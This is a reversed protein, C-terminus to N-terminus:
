ERAEPSELLARHRAELQARQTALEGLTRTAETLDAEAQALDRLAANLQTTYEEYRSQTRRPATAKRKAATRAYRAYVTLFDAAASRVEHLGDLAVREDDLGRFADAVQAILNEDLPPLADTLARSLLKEDPRKTLQPARLQILLSVLTDYRSGLGFLAEDVARRYDAARDYVLGHEGIAEKLRERTLATRAPTLL